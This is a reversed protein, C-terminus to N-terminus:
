PRGRLSGQRSTDGNITLCGYCRRGSPYGLRQTRGDFTDNCRTALMSATASSCAKRSVSHMSTDGIWEGPRLGFPGGGVMDTIPAFTGPPKFELTTGLRVAEPMSEQGNASSGLVNHGHRGGIAFCGTAPSRALHTLEDRVARQRSRAVLEHVALQEHRGRRTSQM